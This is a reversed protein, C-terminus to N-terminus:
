DAAAVVAAAAATAAGHQMNATCESHCVTCTVAEAAAEVSEEDPTEVLSGDEAAWLRRTAVREAFVHGNSSSLLV